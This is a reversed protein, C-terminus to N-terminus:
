NRRVFGTLPTCVLEQYSNEGVPRPKWTEEEEKELEEGKEEEEEEEELEQM